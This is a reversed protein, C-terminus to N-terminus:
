RYPLLRRARASDAGSAVTAKRLWRRRKAAKVELKHTKGAKMRRVKGSGTFRMRKAAGRHTKMKPM